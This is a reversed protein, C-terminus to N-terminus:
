QFSESDRNRNDIGDLIKEEEEEDSNIEGMRIDLGDDNLTKNPHRSKNLNRSVEFSKAELEQANPNM